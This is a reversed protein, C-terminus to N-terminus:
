RQLNWRRLAVHRNSPAIAACGRRLANDRVFTGRGCPSRPKPIGERVSRTRFPRTLASDRKVCLRRVATGRAKVSGRISGIPNTRTVERGIKYAPDHAREAYAERFATVDDARERTREFAAPYSRGPYLLTYPLFYWQRSPVRSCTDHASAGARAFYSPRLRAGSKDRRAKYRAAIHVGSPLVRSRHPSAACRSVCATRDRHLLVFEDDRADHCMRSSLRETLSKASKHLTKVVREYRTARFKVRSRREGEDGDWLHLLACQKKVHLNRGRRWRRTCFFCANRM